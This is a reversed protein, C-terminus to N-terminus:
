SSKLLLLGARAKLSIFIGFLSSWFGTALILFMNDRIEVPSAGNAQFSKTMALISGAFGILLAAERGNALLVYVWENARRKALISYVVYMVLSSTVVSLPLLLFVAPGIYTYLFSIAKM